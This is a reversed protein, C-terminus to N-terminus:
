LAEPSATSPASNLNAAEPCQLACSACRMAGNWPSLRAVDRCVEAPTDSIFRRLASQHGKDLGSVCCGPRAAPKAPPVRHPSRAVTPAFGQSTPSWARIRTNSRMDSHEDPATRPRRVPTPRNVPWVACDPIGRGHSQGRRQVIDTMAPKGGPLDETLERHVHWRM